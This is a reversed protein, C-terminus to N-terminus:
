QQAFSRLDNETFESLVLDRVLRSVLNLSTKSVVLAKENGKLDTIVKTLKAPATHLETGRFFQYEKCIIRNRNSVSYRNGTYKLDRFQENNKLEINKM